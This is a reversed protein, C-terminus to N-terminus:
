GEEQVTLIYTGGSWGPDQSGGVEEDQIMEIIFGVRM